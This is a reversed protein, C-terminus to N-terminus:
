RILSSGYQDNSLRNILIIFMYNYYNLLIGLVNIWYESDITSTFNADRLIRQIKEEKIEYKRNRKIKRGIAEMARM